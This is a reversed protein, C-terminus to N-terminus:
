TKRQTERVKALQARFQAVEGPHELEDLDLEAAGILDDIQSHLAGLEGLLLNDSTPM